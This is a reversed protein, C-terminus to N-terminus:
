LEGLEQHQLEDDPSPTVADYSRNPLVAQITPADSDASNSLQNPLSESVPSSASTNSHPLARVVAAVIEPIDNRTLSDTGRHRKAPSATLASSLSRKNNRSFGSASGTSSISSSASGPSRTSTGRRPTSRTSQQAPPETRKARTRRTSQTSRTSQTAQRASRGCMIREKLSIFWAVSWGRFSTRM